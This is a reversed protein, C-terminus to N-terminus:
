TQRLPLRITFETGRGKQSQVEIHGGHAVVIQRSQYLGIGLGDPKTTRFATFLDDRVFEQDMGCGEDMVVISAEHDDGGVSLTVPGKNQTAELANLLLNLLVKFLEERDGEVSVAEGVVSVSAADVFRAAEEALDRLDVKQRNLSITGPLSKLRSILIKMRDVTNGLSQLMDEQFEPEHMYHQANGLMLSLTYVLNKLDHAVFTSVKGLAEMERAQALQDALRFNLLALAVQRAMAKILDYDEFSYSEQKDMPNGLMLFGDLRDGIILPAMLVIKYEDIFRTQEANITAPHDQGLNLVWGKERMPVFLPDDQPFTIRPEDMEMFSRCTFTNNDFDHLFLAACGMGFTECFGKLVADQLGERSRARSLHETFKHWEQRYDYKNKYFHKVLFARIKRKVSESLLIVVLATGSLLAIIALLVRPFDPGFHKLGEGLLGLGLLYTGVVLLVLSKFAMQRSLSIRVDKSGRRILSYGILLSGLFLATSRVPVLQMNLTRYLLGQSFYFLLGALVIGAGILTLKVKWRLGHSTSALTSELNVLPLVLFLILCVYFIFAPPGLFLIRELAFDPSFYFAEFPFVLVTVPFALALVLCTAQVKSFSQSDLKRAFTLSFLLWALPLLGEAHMALRKWRPLADPNLLALLDFLELAACVGLAALLLFMDVSRRGRSLLFLPVALATVIAAISLSTQLM